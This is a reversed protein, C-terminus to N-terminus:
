RGTPPSPSQPPAAPPGTSDATYIQNHDQCTVPFDFSGMFYACYETVRYSNTAIKWPSYKLLIMITFSMKGEAVEHVREQSLTSNWMSSFNEQGSLMEDKSQPANAFDGSAAAFLRDVDADTPAHDLLVAATRQYPSTTPPGINLMHYNFLYRGGLSPPTALDIKPVVVEYGSYDAQVSPTPVAPSAGEQPVPRLFLWLFVLCFATAIAGGYRIVGVMKRDQAYISAAHAAMVFFPWALLLALWRYGPPLVVTVLGIGVALVSWFYTSERLPGWFSAPKRPLFRGTGSDRPMSHNPM